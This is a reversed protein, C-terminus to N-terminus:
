NKQRSKRWLVSLLMTGSIKLPTLRSQFLENLIGLFSRIKGAKGFKEGFRGMLVGAKIFSLKAFEAGCECVVCTM